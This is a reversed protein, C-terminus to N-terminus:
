EKTRKSKKLLNSKSKQKGIEKAGKSNQKNEGETGESQKKQRITMNHPPRSINDLLGLMAGVM